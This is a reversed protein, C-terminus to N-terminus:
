CLSCWYHSDVIQCKHIEQHTVQTNNKAFYKNSVRILFSIFGSHLVQSQQRSKFYLFFDEVKHFVFLLTSHKLMCSLSLFPIADKCNDNELCHFDLHLAQIKILDQLSFPLQSQCMSPLYRFKRRFQMNPLILNISIKQSM